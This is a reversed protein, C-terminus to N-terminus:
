NEEKKPDKDADKGKAEEEDEDLVKEALRSLESQRETAEGSKEEIVKMDQDVSLNGTSQLDDLRQDIGALDRDEGITEHERASLAAEVQDVNAKIDYNQDTQRAFEERVMEGLLGVKRELRDRIDKFAELKAAYLIREKNARMGRIQRATVTEDEPGDTIRDYEREQIELEDGLLELLNELTEVDEQLEGITTSVEDFPQVDPDSILTGFSKNMNLDQEQQEALEETEEEVEDVADDALSEIEEDTLEVDAEETESRILQRIDDRIRPLKLNTM